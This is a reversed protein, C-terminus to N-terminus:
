EKFLIQELLDPREIHIVGGEIFLIRKAQFRKLM